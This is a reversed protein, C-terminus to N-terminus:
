VPLPGLSDLLGQLGSMMEWTSLGDDKWIGLLKGRSLFSDDSVPDKATVAIVPVHRWNEQARMRELVEFGDPPPMMLDLLVLDPRMEDMLALGEQGGCAMGIQYSGSASRIMRTLLRVMGPDDDIILLRNVTGDWRGLAEVLRERSIPKILYDTVGL